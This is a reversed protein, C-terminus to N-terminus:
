TESVPINGVRYESQFQTNFHFSFDWTPPHLLGIIASGTGLGNMHSFFMKRRHVTYRLWYFIVMMIITRSQTCQLRAKVLAVLMLTNIEHVTIVVEDCAYASPDINKRKKHKCQM